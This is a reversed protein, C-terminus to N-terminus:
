GEGIVDSPKLDQYDAYESVIGFASSFAPRLAALMGLVSAISRTRCTCFQAGDGIHEDCANLNPFHKVIIEVIATRCTELRVADEDTMPPVIVIMANGAEPVASRRIGRCINRTPSQRHIAVLLLGAVENTRPVLTLAENKV